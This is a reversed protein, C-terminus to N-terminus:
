ELLSIYGLKVVSEQRNVSLPPRKTMTPQRIQYVRMGSVVSGGNYIAHRKAGKM